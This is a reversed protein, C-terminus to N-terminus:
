LEPSEEPLALRRISFQLAKAVEASTDSSPEFHQLYHRVQLHHKEFWAAYEKDATSAEDHRWEGNGPETADRVRIRRLALWQERSLRRQEGSSRMPPEENRQLLQVLPAAEGQPRPAEAELLQFLLVSLLQAANNKTAMQRSVGALEVAVHAGADDEYVHVDEVQFNLKKGAIALVQLSKVNNLLQTYQTLASDDKVPVGERSTTGPM